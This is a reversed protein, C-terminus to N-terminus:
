LVNRERQAAAVAGYRGREAHDDTARDQHSDAPRTPRLTASFGSTEGLRGMVTQMLEDNPEVTTSGDGVATRAGTLRIELGSQRPSPRLRRVHRRGDGDAPPLPPALRAHVTRRYSRPVPMAGTVPPHLAIHARPGAAQVLPLPPEAEHPHALLVRDHQRGVAAGATVAHVRDLLLRQVM